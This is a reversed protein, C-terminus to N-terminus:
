EPSETRHTWDFRSLVLEDEGLDLRDLITGALIGEPLKVPIEGSSFSLNNRSQIVCARDQDLSEHSCLSEFLGAGGEVMVDNYGSKALVSRFAVAFGPDELPPLVALVEPLYSSTEMSDSLLLYRSPKGTSAELRKQKELFVEIGAFPKGMVFVREPEWVGPFLSHTSFIENQLLLLSRLLPDQNKILLQERVKKVACSSGPDWRFAPILGPHHLGEFRVNLSPLDTGITGPGVVIADMRSRLLMTVLGARIGSIRVRRNQVGMYGESSIAVKFHLRPSNRTIKKNFGELFVEGASAIGDDRKEPDRTKIPDSSQINKFDGRRSTPNKDMTRLIEIGTQELSPDLRDIRVSKIERTATIRSTCPPTRGTKSCPELTVYLEARLDESCPPGHQFRAKWGEYQDLCVIEAHRNGAPETAGPFFLDWRDGTHGTSEGSKVHLVAAVAPNPSTRGMALLSQRILEADIIPWSQDPHM